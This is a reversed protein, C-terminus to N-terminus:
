ETEDAAASELAEFWPKFDSWILAQQEPKITKVHPTPHGQRWVRLSLVAGPAFAEAPYTYEGYFGIDHMSQNGHDFSRQDTMRGPHIPEVVTNNRLLEMRDFDAKFRYNQQASAGIMAVAFASGATLTIEPVAKLRVVPRYDGIYRRWEYFDEGPKYEKVKKRKSRKSRQALAQREDEVELKGIMLPTLFQVDFKGAELHYGKRNLGRTTALERLKDAPYPFTPEVPLLRAEPPELDKISERAIDLLSHAFHIRVIGSVGPGRDTLVGFTNVGVVEGRTSFLPGGSNGPNISVDSYIAGEEIKSVIGSTLITETALPSGIAVVREGVALLPTDASAESLALPTLGEIAEPPVRLIALDNLPDEAVATAPYKRKDDVKVALYDSQSIVHHNTLVLGASDVLFGSGRGSESEIKFVSGRYLRYLGGEDLAVSAQQPAIAEIQANDNSLELEVVSGATVSFGVEWTYRSDEFEVPNLARLVYAGPSLTARAGGGFDTTIERLTAPVERSQVVFKRKPIPKVTLDRSVLAARVIVEGQASVDSEQTAAQGALMSAALVVQAIANRM